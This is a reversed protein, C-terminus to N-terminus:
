RRAQVLTPITPNIESTPEQTLEPSTEVVTGTISTAVSKTREDIFGKIDAIRVKDCIDQKNPPYDKWFTILKVFWELFQKFYSKKTITTNDFVLEAFQNSSLRQAASLEDKSFISIVKTFDRVFDSPNNSKSKYSKLMAYTEEAIKNIVEEKGTANPQHITKYYDFIPMEYLTISNSSNAGLDIMKKAANIYLVSNDIGDCMQQIIYDLPTKGKNNKHNIDVVGHSYLLEVMAPTKAYSLLNNGQVDVNALTPQKALMIQKSVELDNNYIANQLCDNTLNMTLALPAQLPRIQIILRLSDYNLKVGNESLLEIIALQNSLIAAELFDSDLTSARGDVDVINPIAIVLKVLESKGEHILDKLSSRVIPVGAKLLIEAIEYKESNIATEVFDSDLASSHGDVDVINPKRVVISVLDLKGDSIIQNLADERIPVGQMLRTSIEEDTLQSISSIDIIKAM